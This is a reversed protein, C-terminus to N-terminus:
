SDDAADDSDDLELEGSGKMNEKITNEIDGCSNGSTDEDIIVTDGETRADGSDICAGVSAGALWGAMDFQLLLSQGDAVDVGGAAEIRIDENFKLDLALQMPAGDKTFAARVVWSKGLLADGQGVLGDEARADEVRFDIRQYALAPIQVASLDPTATRTLLDIVFPGPIRVKDEGGDDASDDSSDCEAGGALADEVDACSVDSPLDLEIDRLHVRAESVAYAIGDDGAIGLPAGPDNATLASSTAGVQIGAVGTQGGCAAAGAALAVLAASALPLRLLASAFRARLM